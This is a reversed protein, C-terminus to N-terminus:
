YFGTNQQWGQPFPQIVNTLSSDATINTSTAENNNQILNRGAVSGPGTGITNQATNNTVVCNFACRDNTGSSASGIYIPNTIEGFITNNKCVVGMYSENDTGVGRTIGLCIIGATIQGVTTNDKNFIITNGDVVTGAEAVIGNTNNPVSQDVIIINDKFSWGLLQGTETSAVVTNKTTIGRRFGTISNNSINVHHAYIFNTATLSASNRYRGNNLSQVELPLYIGYDANTTGSIGGEIINHTVSIRDNDALTIYADYGTVAESTFGTFSGRTPDYIFNNKHIQAMGLGSVFVRGNYVTNHNFMFNSVMEGQAIVGATFILDGCNDFLCDSIHINDIQGSIPANNRQSGGGVFSYFNKFSCGSIFINLNDAGIGGFVSESGDEMHCGKMTINIPFASMTIAGESHGMIADTGLNVNKAYCNTIIVPNLYTDIGNSFHCMSGQLNEFWCNDIVASCITINESPLNKFRLNSFTPYGGGNLTHAITDNKKWSRVACNASNGDITFNSWKFDGFISPYSFLKCVRRVTSNAATVSQTASSANNITIVNGVINTITLRITGIGTIDEGFGIGGNTLSTDGVWLDEGIRYASADAVTITTQGATYNVTLTTPDDDARKIIAGNGVIETGIPVEMVKSIEYTKNPKLVVVCYDGGAQAAEMIQDGGNVVVDGPSNNGTGGTPWWEPHVTRGDYSRIWYYNTNFTSRLITGHNETQSVNTAYFIGGIEQDTVLVAVNFNQFERLSNYDPVTFISDTKYSM